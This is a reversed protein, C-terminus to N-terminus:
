IAQSKIERVAMLVCFGEDVFPGSMHGNDVLQQRKYAREFPEDQWAMCRISECTNDGEQSRFPCIFLSAADTTRYTM